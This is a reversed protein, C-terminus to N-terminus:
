AVRLVKWLWAWRRSRFLTCNNDRNVTCCYAFVDRLRGEARCREFRQMTQIGCVVSVGNLMGLRYCSRCQEPVITSLRM